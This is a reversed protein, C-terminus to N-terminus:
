TLYDIAVSLYVKAANILDEVRENYGYIGEMEAPGYHITPINARRFHRAESLTWELFPKPEIGVIERFEGM